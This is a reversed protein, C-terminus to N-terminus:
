NNNKALNHYNEMNLIRKGFRFKPRWYSDDDLTSIMVGRSTSAHIFRVKGDEQIDYVIGVHSIGRGKSFFILDGKQLDEKAVNDGEKAQAAAVRPLSVGAAAGFVSLVFASCDIGRRTMGGYRYPTGLYTIAEDLLDGVVKKYKSQVIEENKARLSREMEERNMEKPSSMQPNTFSSLLQKKATEYNKEQLAIDKADSKTTNSFHNPNAVVYNSVCSQLSFVTLIGIIFISVRKTM